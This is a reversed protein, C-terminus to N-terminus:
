QLACQRDRQFQFLIRNLCNLLICRPPKATIYLSWKGARTKKGETKCSSYNQQLSKRNTEFTLYRSIIQRSLDLSLSTGCSRLGSQIVDSISNICCLKSILCCWLTRLSGSRATVGSVAWSFGSQLINYSSAGLDTWHLSLYFPPNGTNKATFPVQSFRIQTLQDTIM